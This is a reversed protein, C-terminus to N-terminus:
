TRLELVIKDYYYREFRGLDVARELWKLFVDRQCANFSNVALRVVSDERRFNFDIADLIPQYRFNDGLTKLIVRPIVFRVTEFSLYPLAYAAHLLFDGDVDLDQINNGAFYAVDDRDANAQIEDSCLFSSSLLDHFAVNSEAILDIAM